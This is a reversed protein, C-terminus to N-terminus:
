AIRCLQKGLNQGRFLRLFTHPVTEFGEQVDVAYTLRGDAVWEGLQSRAEDFRDAYQGLLFGAMISPKWVIAMYNRPPAPLAGTNYGSIAGCIIIRSGVAINNLAAELIEGGVNDYFVNLGEPALERLRRSVREAKYDIAADFGAEGTLWACKEAGGAIGIVRAGKIRAIQGAVSGTAGAAGSVAVTDGPQPRGVDLMGFYATLGTIGLVSLATEETVGDTLKQVSLLEGGPAALAYDQWGFMGSVRDGPKFGPHRSDVVRGAGQSRMVGGIPIATTYGPRESMWGRMAPEYAVHTVRVLIQGDAPTPVAAEGRAFNDVGVMSEPRSALLWQRNIEANM